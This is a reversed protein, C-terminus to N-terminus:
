TLSMDCTRESSAWASRLQLHMALENFTDNFMLVIAAKSVQPTM